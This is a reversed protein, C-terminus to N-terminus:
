WVKQVQGKNEYVNESQETLEQRKRPSDKLDACRPQQTLAVRQCRMTEVTRNPRRSPQM